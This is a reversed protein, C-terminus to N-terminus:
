FGSEFHQAIQRAIEENSSDPLGYDYIKQKIEEVGIIIDMEEGANFNWSEVRDFMMYIDKEFPYSNHKLIEGVTVDEYANVLRHFAETLDNLAKSANKLQELTEKEM